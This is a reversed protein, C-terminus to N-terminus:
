PGLLLSFAGLVCPSLANKVKGHSFVGHFPAFLNGKTAFSARFGFGTKLIPITVYGTVRRMPGGPSRSSPIIPRPLPFSILTIVFARFSLNHFPDSKLGLRNIIPITRAPPCPHATQPCRRNHETTHLLLIHHLIDPQASPTANIPLALM